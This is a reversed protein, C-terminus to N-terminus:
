SDQLVGRQLYPMGSACSRDSRRSQIKRDDEKYKGALHNAVIDCIINIGYNDAEKCLDILDQKTGLYNDDTSAITFGLPQYLKWWEHAQNTYTSSYDKAPQIPSTQVATYGAEKIDALNNKIEDFTWCFAHLIVGGQMRNTNVNGRSTSNITKTINQIPATAEEYTTWGAVKSGEGNFICIYNNGPLINIDGTQNYVGKNEWTSDNDKCRCIILKNYQGQPVRVKFIGTDDHQELTAWATDQGFFYVRQVCEEKWWEDICNNINVYMVENGDYYRMFKNEEAKSTTTDYSLLSFVLAIILLTSLSLKFYRKTNKM